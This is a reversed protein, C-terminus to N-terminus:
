DATDNREVERVVQRMAAAKNLIENWENVAISDAVIGAGAQIVGVRDREIRM